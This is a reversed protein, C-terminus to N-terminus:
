RGGEDPRAISEEAAADAAPEPADGAADANGGAQPEHGDRAPADGGCGHADRPDDRDAAGQVLRDLVSVAVALTELAGEVLTRDVEESVQVVERFERCIWVTLNALTRSLVAFSGSLPFETGEWGKVGRTREPDIDAWLRQADDYRQEALAQEEDSTFDGTQLAVEAQEVEARLVWRVDGIQEEHVVAPRMWPMGALVRGMRRAFEPDQPTKPLASRAAGRVAATSIVVFRQAVPDVGTLHDRIAILARDIAGGVASVLAGDHEFWLERTPAPLSARWGVGDLLQLQHWLRDRAGRAAAQDVREFAALVGDVEERDVLAARRLVRREQETIEVKALAPQM